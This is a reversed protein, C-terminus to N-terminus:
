ETENIELYPWVHMNASPATGSASTTIKVVLFEDAALTSQVPFSLTVPAFATASTTFSQATACSLSGVNLTTTVVNDCTEFNATHGATSDNASVTLVLNAGPTSAVTHPIRVRCYIASNQGTVMEWHGEFWNTQSAVTYFSYGSQDPECAELPIYHTTTVAGGSAAVTFGTASSTFTVNNGAALPAEGYYNSSTASDAYVTLMRFSNLIPAGSGGNWTIGSGLAVTATTSGISLIRTYWKPAPQPNPLTVACASSCNMVVTTGDDSLAVTYSTTHISTGGTPNCSSGLSCVASNVTTSGGGTLNSNPLTGSYANATITGSATPGLSAGAGVLMATSTNTGGTVNSFPTLAGGTSAITVNGNSAPTITINSGAILSNATLLNTGSACDQGPASSSSCLVGNGEASMSLYTNYLGGTTNASPVGGTSPISAITYSTGIAVPSSNAPGYWNGGGAQVYVNYGSANTEAAPSTVVVAQNGTTTAPATSTASALTEGAGNVYTIKVPMAYGVAISGGSGLSLSPAVPPNLTASSFAVYAQGPTGGPLFMYSATAQNVSGLSFSNGSLYLNGNAQIAFACKPNTSCSASPTAGALYAQIVDATPSSVTPAWRQVVADQGSAPQGLVTGSTGNQTWNAFGCVSWILSTGNWQPCDGAVPSTAIQSAGITGGISAFTPQALTFVGTGANYGTLFQNAVASQTSPLIGTFNFAVNGTAPQNSLTIDTGSELNLSSQVANGAGNTQLSLGTAQSVFWTRLDTVSSISSAATVVMAIPIQGTAFGTTNSNPACNATPDLYVYNTASAALTVTGGGYVSPNASCFATGGAINLTLGSGATPWFGPGVGQVYKVNLDMLPQGQQAAPQQGFAISSLCSLFSLFFLIRNM